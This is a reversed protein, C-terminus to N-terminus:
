IPRRTHLTADGQCEGVPPQGCMEFRVETFSYVQGSLALLLEREKDPLTSLDVKRVARADGPFRNGLSQILEASGSLYPDSAHKARIFRSAFDGAEKSQAASWPGLILILKKLSEEPSLVVADAATKSREGGCGIALGVPAYILLQLTRRRKEDFGKM